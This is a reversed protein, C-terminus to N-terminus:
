RKIKKTECSKFKDKPDGTCVDRGKGGNVSDKKGDAINLKDNGSGGSLTNKGKGGSLNDNGAGGSLSDTGDGGNLRDNGTGGSLKDNGKGGNLKDNGAGGNLCDNGDGGNLTDDGALGNLLDGFPTGTLLDKKGTGAKVNACAKTKNLQTGPQQPQQPAAPCADHVAPNSPCGDQTVDGYGDADADPELDAGVLYEWGPSASPPAFAGDALKPTFYSSTAGGTTVVGAGDSGDLDYGILDGGKVPLRTAYTGLPDFGSPTTFTETSGAGQFNGGAAPRIVRFEIQSGPGFDRTYFRTIVGDIPTAVVRGPITSQMFSCGGPAGCLLSGGTKLDSGLTVTPAVPSTTLRLTWGGALTGSDVTADDVIYLSWTGNPNGTFAGLSGLSPAPAPAPFPDGGGVNTPKFFGSGIVGTTPFTTGASDDITLNVNSFDSGDGVDSMLLLAQGSPSVLMMDIDNEFTHSLGHLIVSVHDIQSGMGSVDVTSPYASAPAGTGAGTGSGPITISASNTFDKTTAHALAPVALALACVLASVVVSRSRTM